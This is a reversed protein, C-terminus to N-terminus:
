GRDRGPSAPGSLRGCLPGGEIEKADLVYAHEIFPRIAGIPIVPDPAALPTVRAKPSLKLTRPPNSPTSRGRPPAQGIQPEMQARAPPVALLLPLALVLRILASWGSAPPVIAPQFISM